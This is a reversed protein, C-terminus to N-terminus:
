LISALVNFDNSEGNYSFRLFLNYVTMWNNSTNYARGFPSLKLGLLLCLPKRLREQTRRTLAQWTSFAEPIATCGVNDFLTWIPVLPQLLILQLPAELVNKSLDVCPSPGTGVQRLPYDAVTINYKADTMM